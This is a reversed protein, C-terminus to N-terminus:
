LREYLAHPQHCTLLWEQMPSDFILDKLKIHIRGDQCYGGCVRMTEHRLISPYIDNRDGLFIFHTNLHRAQCFINLLIDIEKSMPRLRSVMTTDDLIFVSNKSYNILFPKLEGDIPKATKLIPYFCTHPRLYELETTYLQINGDDLREAIGLAIAMQHNFQAPIFTIM